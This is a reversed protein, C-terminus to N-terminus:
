RLARRNSATPTAGPTVTPTPASQIRALNVIKAIQGRSIQNAPRFYPRSDPPICPEGSEGCPYGNIIARVALREIHEYFIYGPPADQFTQTTVPENFGFALAAMKSLQGRGVSNGPRFYPLNDPGCPEGAGGCPYGNIINRASM